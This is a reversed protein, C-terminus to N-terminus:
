LIMNRCLYEFTPDFTSCFIGYLMVFRLLEILHKKSNFPAMWLFIIICVSLEHLRTATPCIEWVTTQDFQPCGRSTRQAINQNITPIITHIYFPTAPCTIVNGLSQISPSKFTPHKQSCLPHARTHIYLHPRIFKNVVLQMQTLWDLSHFHPLTVSYIQM